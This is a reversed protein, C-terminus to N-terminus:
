KNAEDSLLEKLGESFEIEDGYGIVGGAIKVGDGTNGDDSSKSGWYKKTGLSSSGGLFRVQEEDEEE